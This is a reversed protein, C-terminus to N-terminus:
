KPTHIAAELVVLAHSILGFPIGACYCVAVISFDIIAALVRGQSLQGLGPIIISLVAAILRGVRPNDDIWERCGPCKKADSAVQIRCYPCYRAQVATEAPMDLELQTLPVSIAGNQATEPQRTANELVELVDFAPAKGLERAEGLSYESGCKECKAQKEDPFRLAKATKLRTKCSPCVLSEM